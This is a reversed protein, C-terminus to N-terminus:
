DAVANKTVWTKTSAITLKNPANKVLLKYVLVTLLAESLATPIQTIAFLSSFKIFAAMVGGAPDPYALAIQLSTTTYTAMNGLFTATFLVRKTSFGMKHGKLLIGYITLSGVVAMSFFNAGLTTIGGNALLLAQFLLVSFGIVFGIGPGHLLVTLAIGTPHSCSGSLSPIKLSSIVFAFSGCTGLMARYPKGTNKLETLCRVGYALFPASAIGYGLAHQWPLFGEMIHM